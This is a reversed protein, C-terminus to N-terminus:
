GNGNLGEGSESHLSWRAEFETQRDDTDPPFDIRDDRERDYTDAQM